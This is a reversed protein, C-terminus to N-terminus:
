SRGLVLLGRKAVFYARQLTASSSLFSFVSRLSSIRCTSFISTRSRSELHMLRDLRPKEFAPSRSVLRSIQLRSLFPGRLKRHSSCFCQPRIIRPRHAVHHPVNPLPIRSQSATPFCSLHQRLRRAPALSLPSGHSSINM